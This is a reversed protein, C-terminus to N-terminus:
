EGRGTRCTHMSVALKDESEALGDDVLGCRRCDATARWLPRHICRPSTGPSQLCSAKPVDGTNIRVDPRKLIVLVIGDDDTSTTGPQTGSETQRFSPEVGGTDGLEERGSAVSDGGLTTNVRGKPLVHVAMSVALQWQSVM